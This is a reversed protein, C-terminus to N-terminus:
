KSTSYKGDIKWGSNKVEIKEGRIKERVLGIKKM